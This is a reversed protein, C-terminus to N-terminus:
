LVGCLFRIYGRVLGRLLLANCKGWRALDISDMASVHSDPPVASNVLVYIMILHLVLKTCFTDLVLVEPNHNTGNFFM